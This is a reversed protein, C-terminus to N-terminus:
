FTHSRTSWQFIGRNLLRFLNIKWAWEILLFVVYVTWLTGSWSYSLMETSSQIWLGITSISTATSVQLTQEKQFIKLNKQHELSIPHWGTHGAQLLFKKQVGLSIVLVEEQPSWYGVNCFSLLLLCFNTQFKCYIWCIKLGRGTRGQINHIVIRIQVEPLEAINM